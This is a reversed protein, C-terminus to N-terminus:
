KGADRVEIKVINSVFRGGAKDGPAVIRAFGAQGLLQGDAAYAVMIQTGGFTPDIEGAGFVSQYGDSGTVIVIKRLIDNKINPDVIIGVSQLLDWLLAGTFSQTVVSGAAFYTVNQNAVPLEELKQLDFSTRDTVEGTVRFATSVGGAPAAALPSIGIMGLLLLAAGFVRMTM